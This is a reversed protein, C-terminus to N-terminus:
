WKELWNVPSHPACIARMRTPFCNQPQRWSGHSRPFAVMLTDHCDSAIRKREEMVMAMQGKLLQDRQRLIEIALAALGFTVFVYFLWTQYFFHHQVSPFKRM